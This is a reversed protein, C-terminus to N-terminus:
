RAAETRGIQVESGTILSGHFKTYCKPLGLVM